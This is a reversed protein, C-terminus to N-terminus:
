TAERVAKIVAEVEDDRMFPYLPLSLCEAALREANPFQGPEGLHSWRTYQHIARGYHVMTGIGRERLHAAIRDREPHEIVYVHYVHEVDHAYDERGDSALTAPITVHGFLEEDYRRAIEQRRAIWKKVHPLKVRLIAAQMESLRSNQGRREIDKSELMGYHRILRCAEAIEADNTIIVGGDGAAGLIKSPYASIAGCKGMTGALHGNWTAGMAHAVDEVDATRADEALGYLHVQLDCRPANRTVPDIDRLIPVTGAAEMANITAPATMATVDASDVVGISPDGVSTARLAIEVADTGSAVGVAYKVGHWEAIEHEFSELEAGYLVRGSRLVRECAATLEPLLSVNERALDCYPVIV